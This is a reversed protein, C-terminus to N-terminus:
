RWGPLKQIIAEKILMLNVHYQLITLHSKTLLALHTGPDVLSPCCLFISIPCRVFSYYTAYGVETGTYKHIQHGGGGGERRKRVGIGRAM